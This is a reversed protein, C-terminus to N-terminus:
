NWHSPQREQEKYDSENNYSLSLGGQSTSEMCYFREESPYTPEM